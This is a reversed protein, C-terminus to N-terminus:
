FKVLWPWRWPLPFLPMQQMFGRHTPLDLAIHLLCGLALYPSMYYCAAVFVFSHTIRYPLVNLYNLRTNEYEAFTGHKSLRYRIEHPVWAVDPLICGIAAEPMGLMLFPISTASHTIAHM